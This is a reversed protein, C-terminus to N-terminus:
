AVVKRNSRLEMALDVLGVVLCCLIVIMADVDLIVKGVFATAMLLIYLTRKTAIVNKALNIVVDFIVAAVGARMVQLAIAIIRNSRFQTYFVSIVSIIIMPPLATGLIAVLSGIVGYMRYGLIVSANIPIPGPSSQAIATIDLMEEEELWQLDEVFKKKMLSVIVFGGGFTFASLLFTAKFLQWLMRAPNEKTKM